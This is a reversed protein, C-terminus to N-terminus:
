DKLPQLANPKVVMSLDLGKVANAIVTKPGTIWVGKSDFVPVREFPKGGTSIGSAELSKRVLPMVVMLTSSGIQLVVVQETAVPFPIEVAFSEKIVKAVHHRQEQSHRSVGRLLSPLAHSTSEAPKTLPKSINRGADLELLSKGGSHPTGQTGLSVSVDVPAAKQKAQRIGKLSDLASQIHVKVEDDDETDLWTQLKGQLLSEDHKVESKLAELVLKYKKLANTEPQEEPRETVVILLSQGNTMVKSQARMDAPVTLPLFLFHDAPDTKWEGPLVIEPTVPQAALSCVVHWLVVAAIRFSGPAMTM